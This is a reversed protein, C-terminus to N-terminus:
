SNAARLYVSHIAAAAPLVYRELLRTMRDWAIFMGRRRRSLWKRWIRIVAHRFRALSASNATIGYYAFHGLLKQGLTQHQDALPLHRNQRCWDTLVHESAAIGSAAGDGMRM